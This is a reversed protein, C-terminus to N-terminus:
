IKDLSLVKIQWGNLKDEESMTRVWPRGDRIM